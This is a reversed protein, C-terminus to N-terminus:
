SSPSPSPSANLIGDIMSKLNDYTPVGTIGQGNVYFTPTSDVKLKDGEAQDATIREEGKKDKIFTKFDDLNLDLAKAYQDFFPQPDSTDAWDRQHEFLQDHMQWFKNQAKAAESAEAAVLANKHIQTLPYHRHVFRIKGEYEKLVRQLIPYAQGCAPCQFDAFEVITVPADEPGQAVAGTTDISQATQTVPSTKPKATLSFGGLLLIAVVVVGIMLKTESTM